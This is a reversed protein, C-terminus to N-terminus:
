VWVEHEESVEDVSCQSQAQSADVQGTVAASILAARRERSLAIAERADLVAADIVSIEKDIVSLIELIEDERPVPIKISGITETNLNLQTGLKGLGKYCQGGEFVRYLFLSWLQSLDPFYVFGDHICAQIETICPKGVTAAISVFLAGPNLKVSKSAGLSSLKQTTERLRGDSATVDSIRVWSWIGDESFYKPDDIPRPSAGRNVRSLWKIKKISWSEPVRGIWEVGSDKMPANPDLGKTVAHTITAARREELLAILREQDAIFADIESTERDLFDAIMRQNKLPPYPIRFRTLMPRRLSEVTSKATNDQLSDKFGSQMVYYLYKGYLDEGPEIVYVRQHAAFKGQYYHFIDGVNGDGATLVAETDHTFRNLTRVDESRVFFPYTGNDVADQVDASGTSVVAVHGLQASRWHSPLEQNKLLSTVKHGRERKLRNSDHASAASSKTSTPM